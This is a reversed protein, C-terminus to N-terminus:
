DLSPRKGQAVEDVYADGIWDYAHIDREGKFTEAFDIIAEIASRYNADLGRQSRADDVQQWATFEKVAKVQGGYYPAYWTAKVRLALDHNFCVFRGTVVIIEDNFEKTTIAFWEGYTEKVAKSMSARITNKLADVMLKSEIATMKSEKNTMM